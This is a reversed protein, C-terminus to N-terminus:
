QLWFRVQFEEYYLFTVSKGSPHDLDLKIEVFTLVFLFSTIILGSSTLPSPYSTRLM